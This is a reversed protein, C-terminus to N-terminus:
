HREVQGDIILRWTAPDATPLTSVINTLIHFLDNPTIWSTLGSLPMEAALPAARQVILRGTAAAQAWALRRFLPHATVLAVPVSGILARRTFDM